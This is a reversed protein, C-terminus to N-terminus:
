GVPPSSQLDAPLRALSVRLHSSAFRYLTAVEGDGDVTEGIVRVLKYHAATALQDEIYLEDHGTSRAVDAGNFEDGFASAARLVAATAPQVHGLDIEAPSDDISDDREVAEAAIQWHRDAFRIMSRDLLQQVTVELAAPHGGTRGYLWHLFPPPVVIHPFRRNLWIELEPESLERLVRRELADGPLSRIMRQIPPDEVGPPTPRYTVVLLLKHGRRLARIVREVQEVADEDAQHLDDLLLVLPHSAAASLLAEGADDPAQAVAQAPRRNRRLIQLTATVAAILNGVVPIASLWGPLLERASEMAKRRGGLRDYAQKNTALVAAQSIPQYAGEARPGVHFVWGAKERRAARERFVELLASKGVGASGQILVVNPEGDVARHLCSSLHQLEDIRGAFIQAKSM